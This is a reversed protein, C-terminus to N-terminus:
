DGVGSQLFVPTTHKVFPQITEVALYTDYKRARLPTEQLTRRRAREWVIVSVTVDIHGRESRANM